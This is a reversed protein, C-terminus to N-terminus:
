RRRDLQHAIHRLDCSRAGVPRARVAGTSDQSHGCSVDDDVAQPLREADVVLAAGGELLRDQAPTGVHVVLEPCQAVDRELHGGPRRDPQDAGVAGALARHELHQGADENGVLAGHSDSPRTEAKSSSPAPKWGSSLPRSFMKRLPVMRPCTARRVRRSSEVLDDLEGTELLADVVGDLRVRRAHLSPESEGDRDRDLGVDQDDVLHEGDAVLLELTAAEFAHVLEARAAARRDEDTVPQGLHLLDAVM